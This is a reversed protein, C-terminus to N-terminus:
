LPVVLEYRDRLLDVHGGIGDWGCETAWEDWLMSYTLAHFRVESGELGSAFEKVERRHERFVPIDAANTPEWFVYLLVRYILIGSENGWRGCSDVM